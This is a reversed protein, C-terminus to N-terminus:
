TMGQVRPGSVEDSLARPSPAGLAVFGSVALFGHHLPERVRQKGKASVWLTLPVM